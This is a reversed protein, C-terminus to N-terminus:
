DRFTSRFGHVTIKGHDMHPLLSFMAMNSLYGDKGTGPFVYGDLPPGGNHGVRGNQLEAFREKVIELAQPSLPVRHTVGRKMREAPIVWTAAELDFEEVLALRAESTRVVTLITFELARASICGPRECIRWLPALGSSLCPLM